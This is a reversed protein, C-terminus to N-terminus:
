VRGITQAYLTHPWFISYRKWIDPKEQPKISASLTPLNTAPDISGTLKLGSMQKFIKEIRSEVQTIGRLVADIFDNEDLTGYLANTM